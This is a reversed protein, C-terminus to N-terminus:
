RHARAATDLHPRSAEGRQVCEATVRSGGIPQHSYLSFVSMLKWLQQKLTQLAGFYPSTLDRDLEQKDAVGDRGALHQLGQGFPWGM